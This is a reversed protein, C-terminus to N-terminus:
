NIPKGSFYSGPQFRKSINISQKETFASESDELKIIRFDLSVLTYGENNNVSGHLRNIHDIFTFEGYNQTLPDYGNKAINQIQLAATGMSHTIALNINLEEKPHNYENDTHFRSLWSHNPLGFRVCPIKQYYFGQKILPYIENRLFDLYLGKFSQEFNSYFIKHLLSSSDNAFPSGNPMAYYKHLESIPSIGYLNEFHQLWPYDDTSYNFKSNHDM